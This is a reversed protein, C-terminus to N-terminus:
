RMAPAPLIRGEQRPHLLSQYAGRTERSRGTRMSPIEFGHDQIM